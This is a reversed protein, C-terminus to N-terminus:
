RYEAFIEDVLEYVMLFHSIEFYFNLVAERIDASVFHDNEDHTELFKEMRSSLSQLAGIFMDIDDEIRYGECERRNLQCFNWRLFVM